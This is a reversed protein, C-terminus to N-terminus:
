MLRVGYTDQDFSLSVRPKGPVSNLLWLKPFLQERRRM